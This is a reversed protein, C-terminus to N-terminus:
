QKSGEPTAPKETGAPTPIKKTWQRKIFQIGSIQPHEPVVKGLEDVAAQFEGREALIRGLMLHCADSWEGEPYTRLYVVLRDVAIRVDSSTGQDIKCVATWFRTDEIAKLYAIRTREVKEQFTPNQLRTLSLTYGRVAEDFNGQLHEMRALMFQYTPIRVEKELKTKEDKVISAKVPMKLPDIIQEAVQKQSSTLEGLNALQETPFAWVGVQSAEWVKGPWQGVRSLSGPQDKRDLLGDAIVVSRAGTFASQLRHFRASWLCPDGVVLVRPSKLWDATIPYAAGNEIDYQRLIKDDAKTQALTAVAPAADTSSALTLPLGLVPDFLYVEKNILVGILFPQASNWQPTDSAPEAKTAAGSTLIVSDIKLQRLLEAFLWAREAATVKGTLSLDFVSLPLNESRQTILDTNRVLNDFLKVARELDTKVSAATKQAAANVLLLDRIREIDATNFATRRIQSLSKAPLHAQLASQATADLPEEERFEIKEAQMVSLQWQNVLGVVSEEPSTFGLSELRLMELISKLSEDAVNVEQSQGTAGTVGEPGTTTGAAPQKKEGCGSLLFVAVILGGLLGTNRSCWQRFPVSCWTMDFFAKCFSDSQPRTLLIRRLPPLNVITKAFSRGFHSM